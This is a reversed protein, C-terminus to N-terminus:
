RLSRALRRLLWLAGDYVANGAINAGFDSWWSQHRRIDRLQQEQRQLASFLQWDHETM